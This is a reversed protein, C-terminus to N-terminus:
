SAGDRRVDLVGAVRELRAPRRASVAGPYTGQYRRSAFRKVNQTLKGPSNGRIADYFRQYRTPLIM